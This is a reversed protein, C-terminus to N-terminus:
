TRNSIIRDGLNSTVSDRFGLYMRPSKSPKSQYDKMESINVLNDNDDNDSGITGISDNTRFLVNPM